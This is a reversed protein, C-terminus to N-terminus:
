EEKEEESEQTEEPDQVILSYGERQEFVLAEECVTDGPQCILGVLIIITEYMIM